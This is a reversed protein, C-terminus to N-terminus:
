CSCCRRDSWLWFRCESGRSSSRGTRDILIFILQFMSLSCEFLIDMCRDLSRRLFLCRNSSVVEHLLKAVYLATLPTQEATKLVITNGCALAPGVKWAFMILPFNWPIIQGAVGIPEHLVQVHHNGDAPVTLGHIKDAWGPHNAFFGVAFGTLFRFFCCSLLQNSCHRASSVQMITFCAYSYRYNLNLRNNTLNGMTGHKWHQFNLLINRLWIQLGYCYGQDNRFISVFYVTSIAIWCIFSLPPPFLLLQLKYSLIVYASMRPWPGEDFAKRAASVARNIDEADGEAVHAIVEGTRPDYTPFTKGIIFLHYWIWGIIEM